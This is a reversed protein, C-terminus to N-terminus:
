LENTDQEIQAHIKRLAEQLYAETIHDADFWLGEDEAQTTVLERLGAERKELEEKEKHLNVLLGSTSSQWREVRGVEEEADKLATELDIAQLEWDRMQDIGFSRWKRVVEGLEESLM